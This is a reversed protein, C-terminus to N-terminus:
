NSNILNAFLKKQNAKNKEAKKLNLKEKSDLESYLLNNKQNIEFFIYNYGNTGIHSVLNLELIFNNGNQYLRTPFSNTYNKHSNISFYKENIQIYLKDKKLINEKCLDKNALLDCLDTEVYLSIKNEISFFIYEISDKSICKLNEKEIEM